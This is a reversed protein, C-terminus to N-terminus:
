VFECGFTFLTQEQVGQQLKEELRNVLANREGEIEDQRSAGCNRAPPKWSGSKNQRPHAKVQKFRKKRSLCTFELKPHTAM